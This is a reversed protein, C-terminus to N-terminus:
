THALRKSSLHKKERIIRQVDVKPFKPLRELEQVTKRINDNMLLRSEVYASYSEGNRTALMAIADDLNHSITVTRKVKAM